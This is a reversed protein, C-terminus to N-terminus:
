SPRVLQANHMLFSDLYTLTDNNTMENYVNFVLLFGNDGRFRAM